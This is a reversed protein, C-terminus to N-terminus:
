QKSAKTVNGVGHALVETLSEDLVRGFQHPEILMGTIM